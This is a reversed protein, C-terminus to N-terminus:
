AARGYVTAYHDLWRRRGADIEYQPPGFGAEKQASAENILLRLADLGPEGGLALCEDVRESFWRFGGSERLRDQTM